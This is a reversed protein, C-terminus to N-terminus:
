PRRRISVQAHEYDVQIGLNKRDQLIDITMDFRSSSSEINFEGSYLAISEHTSSAFGGALILRITESIRFVLLLILAIGVGLLILLMM